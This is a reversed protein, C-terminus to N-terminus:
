RQSVRLYDVAVGLPRTDAGAGTDSPRTSRSVRLHVHNVGSRWAGALTEIRVVQWDAGIPFPGFVAKGTDVTLLQPGAGPLSFARVRLQVDLDAAHALPVRVVADGLTWRFTTDGDREPVAWAGTMHAADDSGVDVRGYPQLPDGLFHGPALRDYASPPVANRAAFWLNAPASFPHGIWRHITRAQDGALTGFAVPEGASIVGRGAASMLTLNWVVLAALSAGVFLQPRTAAVQRLGQWAVALGLALMPLVGDFRRGGFGASGWWDQIAANFYVMVGTAALFAV